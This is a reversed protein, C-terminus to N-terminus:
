QRGFYITCDQCGHARSLPLEQLRWGRSSSGPLCIHTLDAGTVHFGTRSCSQLWRVHWKLFARRSIGQWKRSSFSILWLERRRENSPSSLPDATPMGGWGRKASHQSSHSNRPTRNLYRPRALTSRFRWNVQEVAFLVYYLSLVTLHLFNPRSLPNLTQKLSCTSVM